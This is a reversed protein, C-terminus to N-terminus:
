RTRAARWYSTALAARANSVVLVAVACLQPSKAGPLLMSPKAAAAAYLFFAPGKLQAPPSRCLAGKERFRAQSLVFSISQRSRASM